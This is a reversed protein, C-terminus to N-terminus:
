HSKSTVKEDEACAVPMSPPTQSGLSSALPNVTPQPTAPAYCCCHHPHWFHCCGPVVLLVLVAFVQIVRVQRIRRM